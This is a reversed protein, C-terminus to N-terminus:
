KAQMSGNTKEVSCATCSLSSSGNSPIPSTPPTEIKFKVEKLKLLRTELLYIFSFIRHIKTLSVLFSRIESCDSICKYNDYDMASLQTPFKLERPFFEFGRM